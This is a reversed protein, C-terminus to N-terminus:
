HDTNPCKAHNRMTKKAPAFFVSVLQASEATFHSSESHLRVEGHAINRARQRQLGFFRCQDSFKLGARLFCKRPQDRAEMLRDVGQKRTGHRIAGIGCIQGLFDEDLNKPADAVKV